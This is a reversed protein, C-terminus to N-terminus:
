NKKFKKRYTSQRERSCLTCDVARNRRVSMRRRQQRQPRRQLEPLFPGVSSFTNLQYEIGKRGKRKHSPNVYRFNSNNYFTNYHNCFIIVRLNMLCSGSASLPLDLSGRTLSGSSNLSIISCNREVWFLREEYFILQSYLMLILVFRHISQKHYISSEQTQNDGSDDTRNTVVAPNLVVVICGAEDRTVQRKSSTLHCYKNRERQRQSSDEEWRQGKFTRKKRRSLSWSNSIQSLRIWM